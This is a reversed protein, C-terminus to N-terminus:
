QKVVDWENFDDGVKAPGTGFTLSVGDNTFTAAIVNVGAKRAQGMASALTLKHSRVRKPSRRVYLPSPDYTVWRDDEDYIPRVV